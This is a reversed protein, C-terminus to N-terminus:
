AAGRAYARLRADTANQRDRVARREDMVSHVHDRCWRGGGWALGDCCECVGYRAEGRLRDRLARYTEVRCREGRLQLSGFSVLGCVEACREWTWGHRELLVDRMWRAPAARMMARGDMDDLSAVRVAEATARRMTNAKSVAHVGANPHVGAADMVVRYPSLGWVTSLAAVWAVVPASDVTRPNGRDAELKVKAHYTSMAKRCRDCRCGDTSYGLYHGHRDTMVTM